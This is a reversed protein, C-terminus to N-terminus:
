AGGGEGSLGRLFAVLNRVEAETLTEKWAPMAESGGFARPGHLIVRALDEPEGTEADADGDFYYRGATFDRPKPNLAAAAQGNGGGDTGHCTACHVAYLAQGAAADGGTWDIRVPELAIPGATSRALEEPSPEAPDGAARPAVADAEGAMLDSPREETDDVMCAGASLALLLAGTAWPRRPGSTPRRPARRTRRSPDM